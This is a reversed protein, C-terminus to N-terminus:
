RSHVLQVKTSGVDNAEEKIDANDEREEYGTTETDDENEDDLGEGAEVDEELLVRSYKKKVALTSRWPRKATQSVANFLQARQQWSFGESAMTLHFLRKLDGHDWPEPTHQAPM